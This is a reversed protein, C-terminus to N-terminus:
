FLNVLVKGVISVPFIFSLGAMLYYFLPAFLLQRGGFSLPDDYLPLGTEKVAEIQRLTFYAEDGSFHSPYLALLARIGFVVLFLAIIIWSFRARQAPQSFRSFLAM